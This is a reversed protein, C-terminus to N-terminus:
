LLREQEFQQWVDIQWFRNLASRWELLQSLHLQSHFWTM